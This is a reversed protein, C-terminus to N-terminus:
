VGSNILMYAKQNTLHIFLGGIISCIFSILIFWFVLHLDKEPFKSLSKRNLDAIQNNITNFFSTKSKM